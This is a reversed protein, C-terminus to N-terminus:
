GAADGQKEARAAAVAARLQELDVGLAALARAAIGRGEVLLALLIHESGIREDRGAEEFALGLMRKARLSFAFGPGHRSPPRPERHREVEAQVASAEVGLRALARVATSDSADLIGLLIHEGDIFEHALGVAARRAAALARRADDRAWDFAMDEMAASGAQLGRWDGSGRVALAAEELPEFSVVRELARAAIGEGEALLGLVLHECGVHDDELRQAIRMAEELARKSRPTFPIAGGRLVAQGPPPAPPAREEVARRVAALDVGLRTLAATAENEGDLLGLLIHETGIFYHRLRIAAKGSQAM